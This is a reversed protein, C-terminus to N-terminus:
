ESANSFVERRYIAQATLVKRYPRIIRTLAVLEGLGYEGANPNSGAENTAPSIRASPSSISYCGTTAGAQLQTDGVIVIYNGLTDDSSTDLNARNLLTTSQAPYNIRLAVMGSQFSTLTADDSSDLAYPGTRPTSADGDHDVRIEEIPSVWEVITEGAALMEGAFQGSGTSPSGSVRYEVLPILVTEEGEANQVITGPYRTMQNDRIMVPILLRNLLPLSDAFARFNGGFATGSGWENDHIVLYQEDYITEKFSPDQCVFQSTDCQDIQGLGLVQNPPYAARSIEQAAVDVAQQLVNAQFFFLGFTITAGVLIIIVPTLFVFELLAQGSRPPLNKTNTRMTGAGWQRKTDIAQNWSGTRTSCKTIGSGNLLSCEPHRDALTKSKITSGRDRHRPQHLLHRHRKADVDHPSLQVAIPDARLWQSLKQTVDAWPVTALANKRNRPGLSLSSENEQRASAHNM